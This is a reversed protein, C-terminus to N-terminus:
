QRELVYVTVTRRGFRLAELHTEFALDIRNGKIAGGTDAALAYGYGEIYLRTGLPIVRPDVAVIGQHVGTGTATRTGVTPDYATASMTLIERSRYDVGGRSIAIAKGTGILYIDPEAAKAVVREVVERGVLQGDETVERYTVAESGDTGNQVCETIGVSLSGTERKVADHAIAVQETVLQESVRVVRITMNSTLNTTPSPEVRDLPGLAIQLKTLAMAVTGRRQISRATTGDVTVSVPIPWLVYAVIATGVILAAVASVVLSRRKAAFAKIAVM